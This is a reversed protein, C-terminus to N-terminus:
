APRSATPWGSRSASRRPSCATSGSASSSRSRRRSSTSTAPATEPPRCSSRTSSGSSRRTRSATRPRSIRKTRTASTRSRTSSPSRRASSPCRARAPAIEALSTRAAPSARPRHRLADRAAARRHRPHRGPERGRCAPPRRRARGARRRRAAADRVPVLEAIGPRRRRALHRRVALNYRRALAMGIGEASRSARPRSRRPSRARAPAAARPRSGTAASSSRSALRARRRPRRRHQLRADQRRHPQLPADARRAAKPTTRLPGAAGSTRARRESMPQVRSVVRAAPSRRLAAVVAGFALFPAFPIAMKRAACGKTALLVVAPVLASLLGVMLASPVTRGLFAGLLLALKVDGMGMGRPYALAAIFLFLAAGLARRPAVRREPRAGNPRRSRRGRGPHRDRNPVIRHEIDIASIAVLVICFAAAMAAYASLGFRLVCGAVLLGTVLEVLPYRVPIHAGCARCRGRLLVYSLVPINDRPRSRADRLEHLGLRPKVLSRHLPLRSAVVNLFSGLALGPAAFVAALAISM